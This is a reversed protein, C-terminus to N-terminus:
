GSVATLTEPFSQVLLHCTQTANKTSATEHWTM